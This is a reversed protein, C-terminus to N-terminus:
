QGSRECNQFSSLDSIEYIIFHLDLSHRYSEWEHQMNTKNWYFKNYNCPTLPFIFYFLTHLAPFNNSTPSVLSTHLIKTLNYTPFCGERLGLHLHYSLILIYRTSFHQFQSAIPVTPYKMRSVTHFQQTCYRIRSVARYQRTSWEKGVM